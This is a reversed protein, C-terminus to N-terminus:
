TGWPASRLWTADNPSFLFVLSGNAIKPILREARTPEMAPCGESRGAGSRTVYPAGHVVVGRSRAASNFRGSVGSLRLGISHYLRGNSHGSFSYTEQTVYLGLSTMASGERNSFRTPVGNRGSSSGRGHAVTFPGDVLTLDSMDFVYGRATRNDLGYDVYYLYPKRVKDPHADRYEYYARFALRLGEPDSQQRVRPSLATLAADALAEVEAPGAPAREAALSGATVSEAAAVSIAPPESPTADPGTPTAFGQLLLGATLLLLLALRM